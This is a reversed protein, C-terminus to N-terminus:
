AAGRPEVHHRNPASWVQRSGKLQRTCRHASSNPNEHRQVIFFGVTFTPPDKWIVAPVSKMQLCQPNGVCGRNALFQVSGREPGRPAPTLLGVLVLDRAATPPPTPAPAGAAPVARPPVLLWSAVVAAELVVCMDGPCLAAGAPMGLLSARHDCLPGVLPLLNNPAAVAGDTGATVSVAASPPAAAAAAPAATALRLFIAAPAATTLWRCIAAPAHCARNRAERGAALAAADTGVGGGPGAAAAAAAAAPTTLTTQAVFLRV